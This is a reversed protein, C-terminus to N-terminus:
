RKGYPLEEIGLQKRIETESETLARMDLKKLIIGDVVNLHSIVKDTMRCIEAVLEDASLGILYDLRDETIRFIQKNSDM